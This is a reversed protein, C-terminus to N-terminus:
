RNAKIATGKFFTYCFVGEPDCSTNRLAKMGSEWRKEDSLGMQMSKEQVGEVMACITKLTFGQVWQPRSSDAYVFRPTVEISQFGAQVLLPYLRRGILSDGGLRAQVEVLCNWVHRADENDPSFFCSGHDGEILTFTGGPKLVTKLHQLASRPDRLHELVFCVFLHDFTNEAFPLNFIDTQLFIVPSDMGGTALRASQISEWSIDLSVFQTKPSQRMLLTTQAGVGCGAELVLSGDPFQTDHHLLTSLTQSQDRLRQLELDSYGHVYDGSQRNM